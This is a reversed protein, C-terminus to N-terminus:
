ADPDPSDNWTRTINRLDARDMRGDLFIAAATRQRFQEQELIRLLEAAARIRVVELRWLERLTPSSTNRRELEEAIERLMPALRKARDSASMHETLAIEREALSESM